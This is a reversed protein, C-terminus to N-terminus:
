RDDYLCQIKWGLYMVTCIKFIRFHMTLSPLRGYVVGDRDMWTFQVVVADLSSFAEEM